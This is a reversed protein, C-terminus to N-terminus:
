GTLAAPDFDEDWYHPTIIPLGLQQYIPNDNVITSEQVILGASDFELYTSGVTTLPSGDSPIGHFATLHEITYDWQIFLHNTGPLAETVAIAHIGLGNTTDINAWYGLRVSLEARETVSDSLHDEVKDLEIVFHRDPAYLGAHAALDTTRTHAWRRAFGLDTM